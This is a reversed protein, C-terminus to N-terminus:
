ARRPHPGADPPHAQLPCALTRPAHQAEAQQLVKVVPVLGHTAERRFQKRSPAPALNDTYLGRLNNDHGEPPAPAKQKFALIRGASEVGMQGALAQMYDGGQAAANTPSTGEGSQDALRGTDGGQQNEKTLHLHAM